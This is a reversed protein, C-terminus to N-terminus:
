VFHRKAFARGSGSKLYKEFRSASTEKAFEVAVVLQWPRRSTTSPCHGSNHAELRAAVNSTLGAYHHAPEPVSRIVYVFHRATMLSLLAILAGIFFLKILGRIPAPM